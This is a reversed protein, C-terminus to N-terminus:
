GKSYICRVESIDPHTEEINCNMKVVAELYLLLVKRLLIRRRLCQEKKM